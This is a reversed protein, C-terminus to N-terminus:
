STAEQSGSAFRFFCRQAASATSQESSASRAQGTQSCSSRFALWFSRERCRGEAAVDAPCSLVLMQLHLLLSMASFFFPARALGTKQSICASFCLSEATETCLKQEDGAAETGGSSGNARQSFAVHSVLVDGADGSRLACHSVASSAPAAATVVAPILHHSICMCRHSMNASDHCVPASYGSLDHQLDHQMRSSERVHVPPQPWIWCFRWRVVPSFSGM